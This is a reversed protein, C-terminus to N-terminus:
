RNHTRTIKVQAIRFHDMRMVKISWGGLQVMDGVKAIRGLQKLIFSALTRYDEEESGPIDHLELLETIEDISINGDILYGANKPLKIVKSGQGESLSALDHMLVKFIDSITVIGEVSGYEDVVIAVVAKQDRMIEILTGVKALDPIYIYNVLDRHPEDIGNACNSLYNKVSMMGKINSLDGDVLPFYNFPLGKLKALITNKSDNIDVVVLKHRPTMISGVHMNRLNIIRRIIDHETDAVIGEVKAQRIIFRIEDLSVQLHQNKVKHLHFLRMILQTSIDLLKVIPFLIMGTYKMFPSLYIAIQEPYLLAIRKPVIECLATLYTVILLAIASAGFYAARESLGIYMLIAIFDDSLEKGTFMGIIISFLTIAVQVTSLFFEPLAKLKLALEATKSGKAKLIELKSKQSAVIAIEIVVFLSNTLILGAIILWTYYVPM